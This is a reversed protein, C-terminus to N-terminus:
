ALLVRYSKMRQDLVKANGVVKDLADWFSVGHNKVRTHVLEHLLIYDTLEAPLRVLNANLSINNQASCSGWRTKQHRITVRNYTFGHRRALEDLRPVLQRRAKERDVPRTTGLQIARKELASIKKLHKGIWEKRVRAVAEARAFSVERPVAVRVGDFPRVRINTHKARRSRVLRVEGVGTITIIKHTIAPIM